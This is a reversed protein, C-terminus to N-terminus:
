RPRRIGYKHFFRLWTMPKGDVEVSSNPGIYPQDLALRYSDLAQQDVENGTM